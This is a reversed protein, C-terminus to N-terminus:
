GPLVHLPPERQSGTLVLCPPPTSDIERQPPDCSLLSPHGFTRIRREVTAWRRPLAGQTPEGVRLPRRGRGAVLAIGHGDDVAVGSRRAVPLHDAPRVEASPPLPEVMEAPVRTGPARQWSPWSAACLPGSRARYRIAGPRREDRMRARYAARDGAVAPPGCSRAWSAALGAVRARVGDM